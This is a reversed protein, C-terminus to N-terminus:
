GVGSTRAAVRTIDCGVRINNLDKMNYYQSTADLAFDALVTGVAAGKVFGVATETSPFQNGTPYNTGSGGAYFINRTVNYGTWYQTFSPIGETRGSGSMGYSGQCFINDTINVNVGTGVLVMGQPNGGGNMVQTCHEFYVDRSGNSVENTYGTATNPSKNINYALCDVFQVRAVPGEGQKAGSNGAVGFLRACNRWLCLHYMLDHTENVANSTTMSGTVSKIVIAVGTQADSWMGDFVCGDYLYRGGRKHENLNKITYDIGGYSADNQNWELQTTMLCRKVYVDRPVWNTLQAPLNNGGTFFSEGAARFACNDFMYPGSGHNICVAQCETNVEKFDWFDCDYVGMRAAVAYIGRQTGKSPNGMFRCRDFYIDKPISTVDASSSHGMEVLHYTLAATSEFRLGLGYLREKAGQLDLTALTNTTRLVALNANDTSTVRTGQAPLSAYASSRIVLYGSATRVPLTFNGSYTVGATLEIVCNAISASSSLATSLAAGNAPTFTAAANYNSPPTRTIGTPVGEWYGTVDNYTLGAPPAFRPAAFVSSIPAASVNITVSLQVSQAANPDSVTVTTVYTGAVTLAGPVVRYAITYTGNGNNTILLSLWSAATTASPGALTGTGINSIISTQSTPAASGITYNYPTPAPAVNLIPNAVPASTVQFVVPVTVGQAANADSVTVAANYTGGPLTGTICDVNLTYTPGVGTVSATCWVPDNPNQFSVSVTPGALSGSAGINSITATQQSPNAGGNTASFSFGNTSVNLQVANTVSDVNLQVTGTATNPAAPDRVVVTAWHSGAALTAIGTSPALTLTWTPGAGTIAGTLWPASISEIEPAVLASGAPGANSITVTRSAPTSTSGGLTSTYGDGGTWSLRLVPKPPDVTMTVQVVEPSADNADSVTVNAVYDGAAAAGPLVFCSVVWGAATLTKVVTLWGSGSVYGISLSPDVLVGGSGYVLFSDSQVQTSSVETRVVLSTKSVAIVGPTPPSDTTSIVSQRRFGFSM